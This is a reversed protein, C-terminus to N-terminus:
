NLDKLILFVKGLMPSVRWVLTADDKTAPNSVDNQSFVGIRVLRDILNPMSTGANINGTGTFFSQHTLPTRYDPTDKSEIEAEKEPIRDDHAVDITRKELPNLTM